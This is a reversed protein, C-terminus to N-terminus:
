REKEMYKKVLIENSHMDKGAIVLFNESSNFWHFKEFWETKRKKVLTKKSKETLDKKQKAKELKKTTITMAKQVKPIKLKAKKSKDFYDSANEQLNKRLDIKIEM